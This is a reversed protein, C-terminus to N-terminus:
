LARNERASWSSAVRLQGVFRSVLGALEDPAEIPVEHGCDLCVLEARALPGVVAERLVEPTFIWDGTGGVVLTPTASGRVAAGFDSRAALELTDVLVPRSVRAAARGLEALVPGPVPRTTCSSVVETLRDADGARSYWDALLEAPLPIPGAPCGGVLVQGLVRDPHRVAVYQAFKASMSFGLLVFTDAGADDAVALAVDAIRDLTLGAVPEGSSGHGPLDLGVSYLLDPDLHSVMPEFYGASGAWGHMLLLATPGEGSTRYALRGLRSSDITAM